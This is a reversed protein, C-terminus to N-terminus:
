YEKRFGLFCCVFAMIDIIISLLIWYAFGHGDYKDTTLYDTWVDIVSLMRQVRTVPKEATYDQKDQDSNFTIYKNYTKITGYGDILVNNIIKLHDPNNPDLNNANVDESLTGLRKLNATADAVYHKEDANVANQKLEEIRADRMKVLKDRYAKCIAETSAGGGINLEEISASHLIPAFEQLRKKAYPGVGSNIDKTVEYEFEAWKKEFDAKLKSIEAQLNAQSNTNNKLQVLYGSTAAIDNKLETDIVNRYFFTHTNTPMSCFLWCSLFLPIGVWFKLSRHEVYVDPTLSQLMITFGYSAVAFLGITIIWSMFIPLTGFLLKLSEATAWCSVASLALYLLIAGLKFYNTNGMTKCNM